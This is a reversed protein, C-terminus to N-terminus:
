DTDLLAMIKRVTNVNRITTQSYIPTGIIKLGNGKTVHIRPITWIIEHKTTIIQEGIAAKPLPVTQLVAKNLSGNYFLVDTRNTTDNTWHRPITDCLAAMDDNTRLQLPIPFGFADEIASELLLCLSESERTDEFIVNGSNIYTVVSSCGAREFVSRLEQMLVRNKGGVNIGRLLGVYRM